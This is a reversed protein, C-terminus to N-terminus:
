NGRLHGSNRAPSAILTSRKLWLGLPFRYWYQVFSIRHFTFLFGPKLGDFLGGLVRRIWSPSAPPSHSANTVAILHHSQEVAELVVDDGDDLAAGKLVEDPLADTLHDPSVLM